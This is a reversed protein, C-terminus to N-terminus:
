SFIYKILAMITLITTSLSILIIILYFIIISINKLKNM